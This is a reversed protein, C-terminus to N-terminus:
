AVHALPVALSSALRCRLSLWSGLEEDGLMECKLWLACCVVRAWLTM